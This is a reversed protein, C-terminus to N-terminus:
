ALGRWRRVGWEGAVLAMLLLFLVPMDWLDKEEYVTTGSETFSVDEALTAATESTYFHGGTENAIRELLSAHMEADFYETALQTADVYVEDSGIVVDDRRAEVRITYLGEEEPVLGTRYEGDREVNWEMPLEHIRGSPSTAFAVAQVDNLAIYSSDTVATTLSVAHGPAVQDAGSTTTVQSPVYSVLWRLIQQWFTEHTQDELPIDAHMQWIWSDQVPFALTKGRGYRQYALVVYPDSGTDSEGTLLTSAGPKIETIPNLLSLRPLTSWRETSEDITGALRTAPHSRGFPTLRVRVEAFFPEPPTGEQPLVVPLADAVPTGGYGGEAFSLRGGLMLLGGGRQSVFEEIMDLQDHTFSSAEVSGLILGRYAFLEERTKPFFNALEDEDDVELRLYKDEATRQLTVLQLNADGAVARRLFKVEFRPEGEFYLIKARRNEVIVLAERVNNEAVLEDPQIPVVFRFRRPGAESVTFHLRVTTLEGDRPLRVDESTVIRGADEVNVQITQGRFGRHAVMVDVAVSSGLMVARPTDVRRIEIDKEFRERGLGITHVPVGEARLALLAETLAGDANHAGDSVLVLGALPVGGLEQHAQELAKGVDTRSGAFTLLAPDNLREVVDSFRFFRLKFRDALDQLLPSGDSGFTEAVFAHRPGGDVDAIQMSRSDDVLVGLFNQQPVVTAIMLMPRALCFLVVAFAALRLGVLVSRGLTGLKGRVRSYTLVAVVAGVAGALPLWWSANGFVLEGREFVVPRYKFLFTFVAGFLGM